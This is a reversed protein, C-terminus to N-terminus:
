FGLIDARFRRRFVDPKVIDQYRRTSPRKEITVSVNIELNIFGHWFIRVECDLTLTLPSLMSGRQHDPSKELCLLRKVVLM